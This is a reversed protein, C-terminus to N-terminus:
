KGHSDERHQLVFGALEAGKISLSGKVEGDRKTRIYDITKYEIYKGAPAIVQYVVGDKPDQFMEGLPMLRMIDAHERKLEKLLKEGKEIREALALFKEQYETM